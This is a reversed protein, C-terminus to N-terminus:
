LGSYTLITKVLPTNFLITTSAELFLICVLVFEFMNSKLFHLPEFTYLFRVFFIEIKRLEPTQPFGISYILLGIGLMAIVSSLVGFIFLTTDKSKFLRLNVKERFENISM